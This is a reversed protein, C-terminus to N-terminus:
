NPKSLGGTDQKTIPYRDKGTRKLDGSTQGAGVFEAHEHFHQLRIHRNPGAFGVAALGLRLAAYSGFARMSRAAAPRDFSANGHIAALADRGLAIAM